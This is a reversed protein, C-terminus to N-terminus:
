EGLRYLAFPPYVEFGLWRLQKLRRPNQPHFILVSDADILKAVQEFKPVDKPRLWRNQFAPLITFHLEFMRYTDPVHSYWFYGITEHQETVGRMFFTNRQLQDLSWQYPYNCEEIEELIQPTPVTAKLEWKM